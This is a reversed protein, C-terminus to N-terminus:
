QLSKIYAVKRGAEQSVFAAIGIAGFVLPEMWAEKNSFSASLWWSTQLRWVWYVMAAGHLLLWPPPLQHLVISYHQVLVANHM